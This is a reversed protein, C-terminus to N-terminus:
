SPGGPQAARRSRRRRLRARVRKVLKRLEVEGRDLWRAVWASETAVLAGALAYFVVAPGPLVTLLIGIAFAIVASVILVPKVWAPAGSQRQHVTQFRKGPPLAKLERWKRQLKALM